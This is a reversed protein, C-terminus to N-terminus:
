VFKRLVALGIWIVFLCFFCTVGILKASSNNPLCKAVLQRPARTILEFLQYIPNRNRSPGALLFLFAQAILSLGLMEVISRLAAIFFWTM